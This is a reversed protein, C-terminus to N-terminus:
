RLQSECQAIQWNAAHVDFGLQLLQVIKRVMMNVDDVSSFKYEARMIAPFTTLFEWQRNGLANAWKKYDKETEFRISLTCKGFFTSNETKVVERLFRFRNCM